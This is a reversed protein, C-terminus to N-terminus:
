QGLLKPEFGMSDKFIDDILGIVFIVLSGPPTESMEALVSMGPRVPEIAMAPLTVAKGGLGRVINALDEGLGQPRTVLVGTGSLPGADAESM